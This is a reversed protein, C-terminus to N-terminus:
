CTDTCLRYQVHASRRLMLINSTVENTLIEMTMMEWFRDDVLGGHLDM